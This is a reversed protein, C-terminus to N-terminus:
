ARDLDERLTDDKDAVNRLHNGDNFSGRSVGTTRNCTTLTAGLRLRSSSCGLPWKWRPGLSPLLSHKCSNKRERHRGFTLRSVIAINPPASRPLVLSTSCPSFM